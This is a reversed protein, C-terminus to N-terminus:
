GGREGTTDSPQADRPTLTVSYGLMAIVSMTMPLGVPGGTELRHITYRNTGIWEALQSQTMGRLKRIRRIAAGLEKLSRVELAREPGPPEDPSLADHAM